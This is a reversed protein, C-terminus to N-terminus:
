IIKMIKRDGGGFNRLMGYAYQLKFKAKNEYAYQPDALFVIHKYFFTYEYKLNLLHQRLLGWCINATSCVDWFCLWCKNPLISFHQGLIDAKEAFSGVKLNNTLINTLINM